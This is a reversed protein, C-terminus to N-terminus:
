LNELLGMRKARDVAEAASKADLRRYAAACHTKITNYSLGSSQAIDEQSHGKALGSLVMKQRKTLKVRRDEKAVLLGPRHKARETAAYRVERLYVPDLREGERQKEVRLLLKRLPPLLAAGEDAFVRIFRYPQTLLLAEKLYRLAVQPAGRYWELISVLVKAEAEDLPRAFSSALVLVHEAFDRARGAEGAAIMARVTTLYGYIGFLPLSDRHKALDAEQKELWAEAAERDGDWMRRRARYADFGTSLFLADGEVLFRLLDDLCADAEDARELADLAAARLMLASYGFEALRSSNEFLPGCAEDACRLAAEAENRELHLGGLLEAEALPYDSGLFAGYVARFAALEAADISAQSFDRASRHLFPQNQTSSSILVDNKDTAGAAFPAITQLVGTMPRRHDLSCVLLAMGLLEGYDVAIRPLAAYLEDLHRLLGRADGTLYAHWAANVRFFPYETMAKESLEDAVFAGTREAHEAVSTRRDAERARMAQAARKAGGKGKLAYYAGRYDDRTLYYEALTEYLAREDVGEEHRVDALFASLAGACRYRDQDAQGLGARRQVLPNERVLRELRERAAGVRGGAVVACLAPTMEDLVSARLLFRRTRADCPEWLRRRICGRLASFAFSSADGGRKERGANGKAQESNKAIETLAAPWGGSEEALREAAKEAIKGGFLAFLNTTERASFRLESEPVLPVEAALAIEEAGRGLLLTPVSGPLRHLVYPLSAAVGGQTLLHVGDLVLACRDAANAAQVASALLLAEIAREVPSEAFGPAVAAARLVEGADQASQNNFLEALALCLRRYFLAPNDDYPDLNLWACPICQKRLWLLASATKACGLPASLAVVSDQKAAESIARVVQQREIFKQPLTPPAYSRIQASKDAM